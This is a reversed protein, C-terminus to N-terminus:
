TREEDKKLVNVPQISRQNGFVSIPKGRLCRGRGFTAQLVQATARWRPGTGRVHRLEKLCCNSKTEFLKAHDFSTEIESGSLSFSLHIVAAEM